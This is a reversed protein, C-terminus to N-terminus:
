PKASVIQARIDVGVRSSWATLLREYVPGPWRLSKGNIRSVGAVCYPTSTLLAEDAALCDALTLPREHVELSMDECLERLAILSVGQLVSESPPSMVVGTQVILFNAAATETVHGAQDLLLASAGPDVGHAEREALWWHLRSRQKICPDVSSAPVHRTQPVVLHAGETFLRRYRAFPLPFTHVGLTPPAEGAGGAQGLYYGIPGPTAFLVVALEEGPQLLGGNHSVLKEAIETIEDDGQTLPIQAYRCGRRFRALHDAWRYLKRRFTRCLDTITAGFVFGADNLALGAERVPLFQGNLYALPDSPRPEDPM